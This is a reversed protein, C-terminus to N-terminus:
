ADTSRQSRIYAAVPSSRDIGASCHLLTPKQIADFSSLAQVSVQREKERLAAPDIRVHAPDKWPISVVEFGQACYFELLNKAQLDLREYFALENESMLCIISRIGYARVRHAWNHVLPTADSDLHRASGGYLRNHRLPRHCCALLSPIVWLLLESEDGEGIRRGLAKFKRKLDAVFETNSM